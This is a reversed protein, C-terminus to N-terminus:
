DFSFLFCFSFFLLFWVCALCVGCFFSTCRYVPLDVLAGPEAYIISKRDALEAYSGRKQDMPEAYSGRNAIFAGPMEYDDNLYEAGSVKQHNPSVTGGLQMAQEILGTYVDIYEEVLVDAMASEIFDVSRDVFREPDRDVSKRLFQSLLHHLPRLELLLPRSLGLLDYILMTRRDEIAGLQGGFRIYDFSACRQFDRSLSADSFIRSNRPIKLILDSMPNQAKSKKGVKGWARKKYRSVLGVALILLLVLAAAGIIFGYM